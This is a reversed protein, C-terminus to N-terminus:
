PTQVEWPIKEPGLNTFYIFREEHYYLKNLLMLDIQGMLHEWRARQDDTAKEIWIENAMSLVIERFELYLAPTRAEDRKLTEVYGNLKVILDIKLQIANLGTLNIFDQFLRGAQRAMDFSHDHIFIHHRKLERQTLESLGSEKELLGPHMHAVIQGLLLIFCERYMRRHRIEEAFQINSIPDLHLTGLTSWNNKDFRENMWAAFAEFAGLRKCLRGIRRAEKM